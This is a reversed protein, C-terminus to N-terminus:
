DIQLFFQSRTWVSMALDLRTNIRISFICNRYCFLVMLVNQTQGLTEGNESVKEFFIITLVFFVKL